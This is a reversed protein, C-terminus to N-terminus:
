NKALVLVEEIETNDDQMKVSHNYTEGLSLMVSSNESPKQGVFQITVKYPGGPRMGQIFYRGMVNTVCAYQTGSPIHVAVVTAGPLEEGSGDTVVGTLSSTTVQANALSISMIMVILLILKKLKM